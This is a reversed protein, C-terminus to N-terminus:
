KKDVWEWVQKGSEDSEGFGGTQKYEQGEFQGGKTGTAGEGSENMTYDSSGGKKKTGDKNYGEITDDYKWGRADYEAKRAASGIAYDKM